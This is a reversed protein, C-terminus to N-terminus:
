DEAPLIEELLFDVVRNWTFSTASYFLKASQVVVGKM